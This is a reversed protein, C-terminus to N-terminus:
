QCKISPAGNARTRNWNCDDDDDNKMSSSDNASRLLERLDCELARAMSRSFKENSFCNRRGGIM